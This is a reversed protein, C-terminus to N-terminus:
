QPLFNELVWLEAQQRDPSTWTDFAVQKGDPHVRLERVNPFGLDIRKREGGDLPLLWTQYRDMGLIQQILVANPDKLWARPRIVYEGAVRLIERDGGADLRIVRISTEVAVRDYIAVALSSGNPAIAMGYSAENEGLQIVSRDEGTVVNHQRIENGYILVRPQGKRYVFSEGDPLWDPDLFKPRPRIEVSNDPPGQRSLLLTEVEGTNRNLEFIGQGAPRFGDFVLSRGDPSWLPRNFFESKITRKEGTEPSWIAFSIREKNAYSLFRGDPSWDPFRQGGVVEVAPTILRGSSLDLDATYVRGSQYQGTFFLAGSSTVRVIRSAGLGTHIQRPGGVPRGNEVQQSWLSRSNEEFREFLVYRNDPSWGVVIDPAAHVVARTENGGEAAIIWVDAGEDQWTSYAVYRGDPSLSVGAAPEIGVTKLLRYSGDSVSIFGLQYIDEPGWSEMLISQGGPTWAHPIIGVFSPDKLVRPTDSAGPRAPVIHLEPLDRSSYWRTYAVQTLDPSFVAFETTGEQQRSETTTLVRDEGTTLDHLLLHVSDPDSTTVYRGDHSVRLSDDVNFGDWVHRTSAQLSVQARALFAEPGSDGTLLALLIAASTAFLPLPRRWLSRPATPVEAPQRSARWRDLESPYAYVSARTGHSHRRVPLGENKEWRKATRGDRQLYSAIEKWSELTRENHDQIGTNPTSEIM